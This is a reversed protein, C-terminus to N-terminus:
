FRNLHYSHPKARHHREKTGDVDFLVFRGLGGRRRGAALPGEAKTRPGDTTRPVTTRADKTGPEEGLAHPGPALFWPRGLVFSSWPDFSLPSPVFSSADEAGAATAQGEFSVRLLVQLTGSM